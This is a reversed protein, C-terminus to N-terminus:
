PLKYRFNFVLVLLVGINLWALVLQYFSLDNVGVFIGLAALHPILLSMIKLFSTLMHPLKAEGYSRDWGVYTDLNGQVYRAVSEMTMQNAQYNFAITASVFPYALGLWVASQTFGYGILWVVCLLVVLTSLSALALLQHLLTVRAVIEQRLQVYEAQKWSTDIDNIQKM